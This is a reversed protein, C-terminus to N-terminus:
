AVYLIQLPFPPIYNHVAQFANNQDQCNCHDAEAKSLWGPTLSLDACCRCRDSTVAVNRRFFCLSHNVGISLQNNHIHPLWGLVTALFCSRGTVYRTREVIGPGGTYKLILIVFKGGISIDQHVAAHTDPTRQSRVKEARM